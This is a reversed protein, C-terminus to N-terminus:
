AANRAPQRRGAFLSQMAPKWGGSLSLARLQMINEGTRHKWRAGCRKMRVTVLTKCTAEMNGSGIPLRQRRSRAYNMRDHNNALYTIADHVPRAGAQEVEELDPARLEELIGKWATAKNLLRMKWRQLTTQADTEDFMIRTAAALKEILHWFDILEHVEVGLQNRNIRKRLLTWLEPAGDALLSVNLGPNRQLLVQTNAGLLETLENPDSGPMRGYRFSHIAEGKADHITLTACYAMRYVVSYPNKPAKPGPRGVPRRRPEVMPVSVRDMSASLSCAEDPLEFQEILLDEIEAHLEVYDDGVLHAVREFSSRSYAARGLDEAIQEADRSTGLAMLQAMAQATQPLWGDIAGTRTSILDITPGNRVGLERYLSRQVKVTGALGHYAGNYRGVRAYAKGAVRVREADIDLDQLVTRLVEQEVAKTAEALEREFAGCDFARGGIANRRAREATEVLNKIPELLGKFEEAFEIVIRDPTDETKTKVGKVTSARGWNRM